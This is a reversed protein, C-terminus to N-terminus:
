LKAALASCEASFRMAQRRACILRRSRTWSRSNSFRAPSASGHTAFRRGAIPHGAFAHGAFSHGGGRFGGAAPNHFSGHFGGGAHFGGGGHAGGGHGFALANASFEDRRARRKRSPHLSTQEANRADRIQEKNTACPAWFAVHPDAPPKLGAGNFRSLLHLAFFGRGGANTGFPFQFWPGDQCQDPLPSQGDIHWDQTSMSFRM